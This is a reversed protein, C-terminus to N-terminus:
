VSVVRYHLVCLKIACAIDFAVIYRILGIAIVLPVM